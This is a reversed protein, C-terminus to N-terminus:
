DIYKDYGNSTVIALMIKRIGAYVSLNCLFPRANRGAWANSVRSKKKAIRAFTERKM